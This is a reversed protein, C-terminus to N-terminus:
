DDDSSLRRSRKKNGTKRKASLRREHAVIGPRTPKRIKPEITAKQILHILRELADARNKERNRFRRADIILVGERTVRKGGLRSLRQKIAEPLSNSQFIDFRLQVATAVKNVNQGGPGSAHVFDEHLEDENLFINENIPIM